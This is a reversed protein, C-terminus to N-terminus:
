SILVYLLPKQISM